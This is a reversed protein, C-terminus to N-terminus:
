DSEQDDQDRRDKWDKIEKKMNNLFKAYQEPTLIEKVAFIGDTRCDIMKAHLSKLETVIPDVDARSVAPNSLKDKLETHKAMIQKRLEKMKEKQAKRNQKLKDKQEATLNLDHFMDKAAQKHHHGMKWGGMKGHPEASVTPVIIMIGVAVVILVQIMKKM